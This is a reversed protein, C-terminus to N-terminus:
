YQMEFHEMKGLFCISVSHYSEANGMTKYFCASTNYNFRKGTGFKHEIMM